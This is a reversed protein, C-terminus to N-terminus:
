ERPGDWEGTDVFTAVMRAFLEPDQASWPHHMKPAVWTQLQPALAKLAPFAQRIFKGEREGAVALFPGDFVFHNVTTGHIVDRVMRRNTTPSAAVSMDVFDRRDAKSLGFPLSVLTWYWRRGM